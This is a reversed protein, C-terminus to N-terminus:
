ARSECESEVARVEVEDQRVSRAGRRLKPRWEFLMLGAVCPQGHPELRTASSLSPTALGVAPEDPEADPVPLPPPGSSVGLFFLLHCSNM